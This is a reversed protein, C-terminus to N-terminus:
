VAYSIAVHSSNLRTSKRDLPSRASRYSGLDEHEDADERTGRIVAPLPDAGAVHLQPDGLEWSLLPEDGEVLADLVPATGAGSLVTVDAARTLAVYQLRGSEEREAATRRIAHTSASLEDQLRAYM